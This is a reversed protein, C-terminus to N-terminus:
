AYFEDGAQFAPDVRPDVFWRDKDRRPHRFKASADFNVAAVFALRRERNMIVSFHHYKLEFATAGGVGDQRFAKARVANSLVPLPVPLGLFKPRYGPRGAYNPEPKIAELGPESEDGSLLRTASGQDPADLGGVTGLAVAVRIPLTITLVNGSMVAAPTSARVSLGQADARAAEPATAFSRSPEPSALFERRLEEEHPRIKAAKIHKVLRSVRVGENAVWALRDPDDRGKRWLKGDVDLPKGAKNTKPVGSHHLAIVEWQDNFVPSGSSGRETDSGYHAFLELLDFLQNERIVVQKMEGRPHQIINVMEGIRIKGEEGILSCWTYEGLSRGQHSSSKVAVLAYDLKSDTLFFTKPELDFRHLILPQGFRDVQYDFEVSSADAEEEDALVHNNTMLLTPSVLFGTGFAQRGGGLSTVVRGVCRNIYLGRELFDISLFDRTAGIVREVFANSIEDATVPRRAALSALEPTLTEVRVSSRRVRDLLRNVRKALREKTDAKDYRRQELMRRTQRRVGQRQRWHKAASRMIGYDFAQKNPRTAM